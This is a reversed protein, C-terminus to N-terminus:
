ALQLRIQHIKQFLIGVIVSFLVLTIRQMRQLARIENQYWAYAAEGPCAPPTPPPAVPAIRASAAAPPTEESQPWVDELTSGRQMTSVLLCSYFFFSVYM